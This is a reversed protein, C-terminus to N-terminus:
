ILGLRMTYKAKATAADIGCGSAEKLLMQVFPDNDKAFAEELGTEILHFGLKEWFARGAQGTVAYICPLDAYANAEIAHWGQQRAWDILTRVMRSGIGKRQYTNDAQHPSGTMLCHIFLTRDAIQELPPFVNNVFGDAPGDPFMQQMCMGPGAAAMQVVVRPYFRVHGVIRDGDCAVVACAGYADTLKSLLPINRVRLQDWKVRPHPKPQDVSTRTLPGGHLCRWVIFDNTMMEIMVDGAMALGEVHHTYGHVM